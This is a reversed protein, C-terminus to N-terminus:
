LAQEETRALADQAFVVRHNLHLTVLDPLDNRHRVLEILGIMGHLAALLRDHSARLRDIDAKNQAILDAIRRNRAELQESLLYFTM